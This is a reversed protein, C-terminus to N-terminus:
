RERWGDHKNARKGGPKTVAETHLPTARRACEHDVGPHALGVLFKDNVCQSSTATIPDLTEFQEHHCVQVAVMDAADILHDLLAVHVAQGNFVDPEVARWVDGHAEGLAYHRAPRPVPVDAPPASVTTSHPTQDCAPAVAPGHRGLQGRAGRRVARSQATAQDPWAEAYPPKTKGM